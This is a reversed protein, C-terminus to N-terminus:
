YANVITGLSENAAGRIKDPVEPTATLNPVQACAAVAIAYPIALFKCYM